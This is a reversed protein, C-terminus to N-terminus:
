GPIAVWAHIRADGADQMWKYIARLVTNVAWVYIYVSASVDVSVSVGKFLLLYSNSVM